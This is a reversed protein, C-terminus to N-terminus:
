SFNFCTDGKHWFSWSFHNAMVRGIEETGKVLRDKYLIRHIFNKNKRGNVM